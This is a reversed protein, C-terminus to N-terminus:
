TRPRDLCGPQKILEHYDAGEAVGPFRLMSDQVGPAAALQQLTVDPLYVGVQQDSWNCYPECESTLLQNTFSTVQLVPEFGNPAAAVAAFGNM